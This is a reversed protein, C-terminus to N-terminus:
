SRAHKVTDYGVSMSVTSVGLQKATFLFDCIKNAITKDCYMQTVSSLRCISLCVSSMTESFVDGCLKDYFTKKKCHM